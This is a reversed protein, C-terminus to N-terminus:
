RDPAQGRARLLDQYVRLNGEVMQDISFNADVHARANAARTEAQRPDGLASCVANEIAGIDSPPILWGTQGDIVIEPIGGAKAAVIPVGSMAAQLLSVGLGETLAPHVLLDLNPYVRPMDQRFGAFILRDGLELSDALKRLDGEAPGRGFFLLRTNPFQRLIQPAARMLFAHGKRDILQAVVGIAIDSRGIGLETEFWVRDRSENYQSTDIGSHVMSLRDQPIGAGALVDYIGQSIAVIHDCLRRFRVRNWLNDSVPDDVRRSLVVVPVHCMRAALGGLIDAGRRSHLHVIDPREKRIVSAVRLIFAPDCEFGFPVAHVPAYPEV